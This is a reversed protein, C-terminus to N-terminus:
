LGAIPSSLASSNSMAEGVQVARCGGGQKQGQTGGGGDIIWIAVVIRRFYLDSRTMRGNVVRWESGILSKM